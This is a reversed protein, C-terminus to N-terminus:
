NNQQVLENNPFDSKQEDVKKLRAQEALFEAGKGIDKNIPVGEKCLPCELPPWAEIPLNILAKIFPVNDVQEPTVGGRNVIAGVGIVNGGLSRVANIVKLVSGGTTLIDETVLINKGPIEKDYGRSFIFKEDKTKEAYASKICHFREKQFIKAVEHGLIIAGIAPAVVVDIKVGKENIIALIEVFLQEAICEAYEPYLYIRDKLIYKNSHKGSTLKFHGTLIAETKELIELINYM